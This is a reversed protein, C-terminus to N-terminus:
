ILYEPIIRVVKESIDWNNAPNIRFNRDLYRWNTKAFRLKESSKM